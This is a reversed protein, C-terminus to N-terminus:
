PDRTVLSVLEIDEAAFLARLSSVLFPQDEVCSKLVLM